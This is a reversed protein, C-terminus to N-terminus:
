VRTIEKAKDLAAEIELNFKELLKKSYNHQAIANELTVISVKLRIWGCYACSGLLKHLLDQIKKQQKNQFALNIEAQLKPTEKIFLELLEKLIKNSDKTFIKDINKDIIPLDSPKKEMNMTRQTAM